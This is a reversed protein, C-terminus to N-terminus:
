KSVFKIPLNGLSNFCAKGIRECFVRRVLKQDQLPMPKETEKKNRQSKNRSKTVTSKVRLQM